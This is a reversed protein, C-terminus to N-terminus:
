IARLDPVTPHWYIACRGHMALVLDRLFQARSFCFSVEDAVERSVEEDVVIVAEGGESAAEEEVTM